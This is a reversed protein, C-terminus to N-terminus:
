IGKLIALHEKLAEEAVSAHYRLRFLHMHAHLTELTHRLLENDSLQAIHAHFQGDLVAFRGYNGETDDHVLKEMKDCLAQLRDIDVRRANDAALAAATPELLTRLTYVEQFHKGS